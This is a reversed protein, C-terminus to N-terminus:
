RGLGYLELQKGGRGFGKLKRLYSFHKPGIAWSFRRKETLVQGVPVAKPGPDLRYLDMRELDAKQRKVADPNVPDITLSFFLAKGEWSEKQELSKPEYLRWAVPPLVAASTNERDVVHLTKLDESVHLFRHQGPHDGRLNAAKTWALLDSSADSSVVKQALLDFRVVRDPLRVDKKRDYSGKELGVLSLHGAEWYLLRMPPNRVTQDAQLSLRATRLKKLDATDYVAVSVTADGQAGTKTAVLSLVPRGDLAALELTDAPGVERVLKADEVAFLMAGHAGKHSDMWGFLLRTGDPSFELLKPVRTPDKVVIKARPKLTRLDLVLLHLFKAADTHIYALLEGNASFATPDDVFGQEPAFSWLKSSPAASVPGTVLLALALFVRHRM